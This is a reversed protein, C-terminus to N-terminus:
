RRAGSAGARRLRQCWQNQRRAAPASRTEEPGPWFYGRSRVNRGAAVLQPRRNDCPVSGTQGYSGSGAAAGRRFRDRLIRAPLVRGDWGGDDDDLDLKERESRYCRVLRAGNAECTESLLDRFECNIRSLYNQLDLESVRVVNQRAFPHGASCGIVFHEDYIPLARLPPGFGNPHAMLAVDLEGNLM